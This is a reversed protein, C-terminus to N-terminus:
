LHKGRFTEGFKILMRFGEQKTDYIWRRCSQEIALPRDRAAGGFRPLWTRIGDAPPVMWTLKMVVQAPATFAPGLCSMSGGAAARVRRQLPGAAADGPDAPVGAQQAAGHDRDPHRGLEQRQVPRPQQGARRSRAD